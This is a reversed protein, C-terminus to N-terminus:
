DLWRRKKSATSLSAPTVRESPNYRVSPTPAVEAWNHLSTFTYSWGPTITSKISPTPAATSYYTVASTPFKRTWTKATVKTPPQLQMPAYRTKGTQLTYPVTFSKSDANAVTGSTQAPPSDGTYTNAVTLTKTSGSMGKLEFRNTYHITSQLENYAVYVQFFYFGDDCTDTDIEAKYSTVDEVDEGDVYTKFCEIASSSGTCLLVSYSKAQTLSYDSDEDADDDWKIEVEVSGGSATFTQDKKPATLDVDALVYAFFTLLFLISRM